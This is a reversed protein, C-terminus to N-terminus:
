KKLYKEIRLKKRLSYLYFTILKTMAVDYLFFTVNGLAFVALTLEEEDVGFLYKSGFIMAALVINFYLLKFLWSAWRPAREFLQKLIPYIGGFILYLFASFKDPLLLISLMATASYILYQYPNGLELVAFFIFISAVAVMTLDLASIVSGLILVVVGLAALMASAALLRTRGKINKKKMDAAVSSTEAVANM